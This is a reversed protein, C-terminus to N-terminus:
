AANSYLYAACFTTGLTAANSYLYAACRASPPQVLNEGIGIGEVKILCFQAVGVLAIEGAIHVNAVSDHELLGHVV